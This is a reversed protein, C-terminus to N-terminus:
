WEIIIIGPHGAGGVGGPGGVPSGSGGGGGGGGGGGYTAAGGGDTGPDGTAAAFGDGGNGGQGGSALLSDWDGGNGPGGGGGGGATAGAGDGGNGPVGPYFGHGKVGVAGNNLVTGNGGDCGWFYFRGHNGGAGAGGGADTGDQGDGGANLTLIGALVTGDGPGYGITVAHTSGPTVGFIRKRVSVGANGGGGGGGGGNATGGRGGDGGDGGRGIGSVWCVTVDHPVIWTDNYEFTKIGHPALEPSIYLNGSGDYYGNYSKNWSVNAIVNAITEYSAAATAGSPTIKVFKSTSGTITTDSTGKYITGGIQFLAGQPIVGGSFQQSGGDWKKFAQTMLALLQTWDGSVTPTSNPYDVRDIAM